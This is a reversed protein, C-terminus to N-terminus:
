VKYVYKIKCATSRTVKKQPTLSFFAENYGPTFGSSTLTFPNLCLPVSYLKYEALETNVFDM